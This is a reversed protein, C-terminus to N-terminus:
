SDTVIARPCTLEKGRRGCVFVKDVRDGQAEIRVRVEVGYPALDPAEVPRAGVVKLAEPQDIATGRLAGIEAALEWGSETRLALVAYRVEQSFLDVVMADRVAAEDRTPLGLPGQVKCTAQAGLRDKAKGLLADCFTEVTPSAVQLDCLAECKAAAGSVDSPPYVPPKAPGSAAPACAFSSAVFALALAIRCTM